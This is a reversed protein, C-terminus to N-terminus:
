ESVEMHWKGFTAVDKFRGVFEVAFRRSIKALAAELKLKATGMYPYAKTGYKRINTIIGGVYRDPIGRIAAWKKIAAVFEASGESSVHGSTGYELFSAVPYGSGIDVVNDSIPRELKIDGELDNDNESKATIWMISERTKGTADENQISDRIIEVGAEGAVALLEDVSSRVFREAISPDEWMKPVTAKIGM